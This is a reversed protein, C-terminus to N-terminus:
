ICKKSKIKIENENIYTHRDRQRDIQGYSHTRVHYQSLSTILFIYYHVIESVEKYTYSHKDTM